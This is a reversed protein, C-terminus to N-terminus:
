ALLLASLEAMTSVVAAAGLSELEARDRFGWTVLICPLGANQATAFDVESDGVYVASRSDLRRLAAQAMDPAPKRPLSETQGVALEVTDRFFRQCLATVAAQNKNSVIARRIGAEGLARLLADVGDYPRTALECHATYYTSFAAFIEGFQPNAEGGPTSLAVLRRIGNGLFRRVEAATHSPYGFSDLVTHLSDTLDTLTDLLTGDLDFLVTDY